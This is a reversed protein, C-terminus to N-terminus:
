TRPRPDLAFVGIACRYHRHVSHAREITRPSAESLGIHRIKGERVLDALAGVTDEIPTEPDVRHQYYLDVHDM